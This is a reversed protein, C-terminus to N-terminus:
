ALCIVRLDKLKPPYTQNTSTMVLKIRYSKFSPDPCPDSVGNM